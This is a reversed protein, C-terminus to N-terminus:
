ATHTVFFFFNSVLRSGGGCVGFVGILLVSNKRNQKLSAPQKSKMGKRNKQTWKSMWTM